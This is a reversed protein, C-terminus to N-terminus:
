CKAAEALLAARGEPTLPQGYGREFNKVIFEDAAAPYDDYLKRVDPCVIPDWAEQIGIIEATALASVRTTVPPRMETELPPQPNDDGCAFALFPLLLLLRKM